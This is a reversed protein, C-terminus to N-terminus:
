ASESGCRLSKDGREGRKSLVEDCVGRWGEWSVRDNCGRKEMRGM